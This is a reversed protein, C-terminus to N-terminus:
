GTIERISTDDRPIVIVFNNHHINIQLQHQLVLESDLVAEKKMTPKIAKATCFSRHTAIQIYESSIELCFLLEFLIIGNRCKKQFFWANMNKNPSFTMKM